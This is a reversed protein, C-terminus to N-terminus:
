TREDQERQKRQYRRIEEIVGERIEPTMEEGPGLFACVFDSDELPYLYQPWDDPAV